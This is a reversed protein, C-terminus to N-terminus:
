LSKFWLVSKSLTPMVATEHNLGELASINPVIQLSRFDNNINLSQDAPIWTDNRGYYIALPTKLKWAPISNDALIQRLHSYTTITESNFIKDTKFDKNLLEDMSKTGFLGNMQDGTRTGDVMGTIDSAFPENIILSYDIDLAAYKKFSELLYSFYWPQDFMPQSILWERFGTLNYIGSSCASAKVKLDSNKISDNEIASLAALTAGGGQGYGALFLNGNSKCPKETAIFEKSARIFDLVANQTYTKNLFPHFVDNSSGFGIYDPLLVIFGTSAIYTVLQTIKGEPNVSPADNNSVIVGHQYSLMPFADKKKSSVPVAVLGSATISDGEFATKYELKYIKINYNALAALETQGNQQLYGKIDTATLSKTSTYETSGELYVPVVVVDDGKDCSAFLLVSVTIVLVFQYLTKM